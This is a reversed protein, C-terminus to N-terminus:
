LSIEEPKDSGSVRYRRSLDAVVKEMVEKGTISKPKEASFPLIKTGLREFTEVLKAEVASPVTKRAGYGRSAMKKSQGAPDHVMGRTAKDYALLQPYDPHIAALKEHLAVFPDEGQESNLQEKSVFTDLILGGPYTTYGRELLMKMATFHSDSYKPDVGTMQQFTEPTANKVSVFWRVSDKYPEFADLYEPNQAIHFGETYIGIKLGDRQALEAMKVLGGRYLTPSGGSFTIMEVDKGRAEFRGIRAKQYEYLDEASVTGDKQMAERFNKPLGGIKKDLFGAYQGSLAENHVWCFSCRYPCGTVDVQMISGWTNSVYPRGMKYVAFVPDDIWQESVEAEKGVIKRILAGSSRAPDMKPLKITM